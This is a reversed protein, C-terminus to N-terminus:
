APCTLRAGIGSQSRRRRCRSNAANATKKDVGTDGARKEVLASADIRPLTLTFWVTTGAGEVSEVGINGNMAEILRKSIALGLGTGGFRSHISADAQTFRLFLSKMKEPAIGIGTDRVEVRLHQMSDSHEEASLFVTVGGKSTFKIANSIINVLVQRIRMEDGSHAKAVM